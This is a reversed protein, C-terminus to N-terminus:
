KTILKTVSETLNSIFDLDKEILDYPNLKLIEVMEKTTASGTIIIFKIEKKLDIVNKMLGLVTNEKFNYDSIILDPSQNIVEDLIESTTYIIFEFDFIKKLAIVIAEAFIKNDDIIFVKM